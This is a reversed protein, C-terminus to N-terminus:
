VQSAARNEKASGNRSGGYLRRCRSTNPRLPPKSGTLKGKNWPSRKHPMLTANVQDLM